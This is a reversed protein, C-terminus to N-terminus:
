DDDPREAPTDDLSQKEEDEDSSDSAKENSTIQREQRTYTM